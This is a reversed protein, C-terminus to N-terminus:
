LTKEALFLVFELNETVISETQIKLGEFIKQLQANEIPFLSNQGVLHLFSTHACSETSNRHFIRRSIGIDIDLIFCQGVITHICRKMGQAYSDAKNIDQHHPNNEEM